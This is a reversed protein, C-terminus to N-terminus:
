SVEDTIVVLFPMQGLDPIYAELAGVQAVDDVGHLRRNKELVWALTGARRANFHDSALRSSHAADGSRAQM